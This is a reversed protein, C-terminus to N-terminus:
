FDSALGVFGGDGAMIIDDVSDNQTIQAKTVGNKGMSYLDYNRNIPFLNKDKRVKSLISNGGDIINLYVYANGWPDKGNNPLKTAIDALTAPYRFTETNFREINMQIINIDSIAAANRSKDIYATYSPIAIAALVAAIAVTVMLELLTFGLERSNKRHMIQINRTLATHVQSLHM